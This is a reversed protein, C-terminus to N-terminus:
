TPYIYQNNQTNKKNDFLQIGIINRENVYPEFKLNKNKSIAIMLGHKESQEFVVYNDFCIKTKAHYTEQMCLIDVNYTELFANIENVKNLAHNINLTVVKINHTKYTSTFPFIQQIKIDSTTLAEIIENHKDKIIKPLSIRIYKKTKDNKNIKKLIFFETFQELIKYIRKPKNINLKYHLFDMDNLLFKNFKTMRVIECPDIDSSNTENVNSYDPNNEYFNKDYKGNSYTNNQPIRQFDKPHQILKCIKIRECTEDSENLIDYKRKLIEYSNENTNNSLSKNQKQDM